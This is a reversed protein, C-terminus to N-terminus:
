KLRAYETKAEKLIPIDPDADKWLALFDQYAVKAKAADGQEAYARALGLRAVAGVFGNQVVGSHESVKQFEAAAESGQHNALLARGRTYTSLLRQRFGLDYPVVDRLTEVAKVSNNHGLYVTASIVPLDYKNAMTATPRAKVLEAAMSEARATDGARALVYAVQMRTSFSAEVALAAAADRKAAAADEMQAEIFAQDVLVATATEKGSATEFAASARQFLEQAKKLHGVYAESDGRLWLSFAAADPSSNSMLALQREMEAADNQV